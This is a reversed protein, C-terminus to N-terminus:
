GPPLDAHREDTRPTSTNASSSSAANTTSNVPTPNSSHEASNSQRTLSTSSGNINNNLAPALTNTGNRIPANVNTSINLILKGHVTENGNSKKLDLTLMELMHSLALFSLFLILLRHCILRNNSKGDGGVDLDFVTSVQVNIVGLFGQDKKKFKKQDFVQVAIVSRNSVQRNAYLYPLTLVYV